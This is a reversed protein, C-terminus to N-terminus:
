MRSVYDRARGARIALVKKWVKDDVVSNVNKPMSKLVDNLVTLREARYTDTDTMTTHLLDRRVEAAEAEIVKRTIGHFESTKDPLFELEGHGSCVQCMESKSYGLWGCGDCNNCRYIDNGVSDGCYSKDEWKTLKRM